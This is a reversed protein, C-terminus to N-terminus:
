RYTSPRTSEEELSQQSFNQSLEEAEASSEQSSQLVSFQSCSLLNEDLLQPKHKFKRAKVDEKLRYIRREVATSVRELREVRDEYVSVDEDFPTLDSVMADASFM